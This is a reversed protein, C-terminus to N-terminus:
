LLGIMLEAQLDSMSLICAAQAGKCFALAILVSRHYSSQHTLTDRNFFNIFSQLHHRLTELHLNIATNTSLRYRVYNPLTTYSCWIRIACVISVVPLLQDINIEKSEAIFHQGTEVKTAPKVM